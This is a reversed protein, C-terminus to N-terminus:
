RFVQEFEEQARDLDKKKGVDRWYEQIPYATVDAGQDVLGQFLETMDYFQDDPVHSLTAPELVYIGANV